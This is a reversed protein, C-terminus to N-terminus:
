SSKNIIWKCLWILCFGFEFRDNIHPSLFLCINYYWKLFNTQLNEENSEITTSRFFQLQVRFNWSSNEESRDPNSNNTGLSSSSVLDNGGPDSSQDDMKGKKIMNSCTPFCDDLSDFAEDTADFRFFMWPRQLFM